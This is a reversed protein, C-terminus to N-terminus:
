TGAAAGCTRGGAVISPLCGTSVTRTMLASRPGSCRTLRRCAIRIGTRRAGDIVYQRARAATRLGPDVGHRRTAAAILALTVPSRGSARIGRRVTGVTGVRGRQGQASRAPPRGVAPPALDLAQVTRTRTAGLACGRRRLEVPLAAAKYAAPLRNSGPRRSTRWRLVVPPAGSEYQPPLGNSDARQSVDLRPNRDEAQRM